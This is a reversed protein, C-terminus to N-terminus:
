IYRGGQLAAKRLIGLEVTTPKSRMHWVRLNWIRLHWLLEDKISEETPSIPERAMCYGNFLCEQVYKNTCPLDITCQM